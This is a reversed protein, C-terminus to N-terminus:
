AAEGRLELSLDVRDYPVVPAKAKGRAGSPRFEVLGVSALYGLDENVNKPERKVMAALERVSQPRKEGIVWLLELRKPTLCRRFTAIDRFYLADEAPPKKGAGLRRFVDRLERKNEAWDKIGIKIRRVKM